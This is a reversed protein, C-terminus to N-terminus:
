RQKRPQPRPSVNTAKPVFGYSILARRVPSSSAVQALFAPLPAARARALRVELGHHDIAPLPRVACLNCFQTSEIRGTIFMAAKNRVM